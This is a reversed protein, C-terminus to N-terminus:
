RSSDPPTAPTAPTAAKVPYDDMNVGPPLKIPKGARKLEVMRAIQSKSYHIDATRGHEDAIPRASAPVSKSDESM